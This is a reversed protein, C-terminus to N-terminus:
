NGERSGKAVSYPWGCVGSACGTKGGSINRFRFVSGSVIIQSLLVEDVTRSSYHLTFTQFRRPDRLFRRDYLKKLEENDEVTVGCRVYRGGSEGWAM